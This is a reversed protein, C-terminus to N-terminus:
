HAQWRRVADVFADPEEFPAAHGAGAIVEFTAHPIAAVLREGLAKFKEDNEGVVVLVPMTLEGLRDWLSEQSGTGALRLHAAITSVDDSRPLLPVGAFMPQAVWEAVMADAGIEEARRALEEDSVARAARAAPDDIGATASVLVLREVVDPHALALHLAMRGGMSYGIWTGRGHRALEDAAEWLPRKPADVAEADLATAIAGWSAPTQTFGHVLFTSSSTM